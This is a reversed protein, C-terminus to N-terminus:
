LLRFNVEINAAVKVPNGDKTGPEFRWQQIAEIAKGDLGPDLSRKIKINHARGVPWVEVTLVTTGQLKADRAEETYEPEVKHTLRPAEVGDSVRHVVDSGDEIRPSQLSCSWTAAQVGAFLAVGLFTAAM